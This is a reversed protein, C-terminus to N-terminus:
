SGFLELQPGAPRRFAATSLETREEKLGARRCAVHFMQSIQEAFIGEGRMRSGFNPDNMKGGRVARIRNLIKERRDPFHQALWNEFMPALGHPLRLPVYGAFRAGAAVAERIIAPVEHDNLGPIIPAVLVGVNVGAEALANIAALRFRPLSARPELKPTLEGDLTTISINVAVANHKALEGLLDVDRTVLFNKTIICVPNRFEALVELCGRTIRLKREIPQYCDTVGSMAIVQPKWKRSSLEKRLLEPGNEKVMIKTEFDLGASFGLYEHTPRAFCYICGHECGRYPNIGADFPIDPSKNYTIFSQTTDRLLQTRVPRDDEPNWDEEREYRTAM